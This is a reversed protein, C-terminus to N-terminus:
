ARRDAQATGRGAFAARGRRLAGDWGGASARALAAVPERLHRARSLARRDLARRALQGDGVRAEAAPQVESVQTDREVDAGIENLPRDESTGRVSTEGAEGVRVGM